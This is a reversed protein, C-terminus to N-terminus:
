DDFDGSDDLAPPVRCLPALGCSACARLTPAVAADGAAFEAAIKEIRRSWMAILASFNPMGEMSSPRGRAKFIGGRETEAVFCCESANVKGYAVAVLGAPRLLAYIPLQPNEPRDGRWDPAAMGTKYDILVRGGDALRDVRDIRVKFELGGHRATQEGQELYEVEFPERSLETELWKGLLKGLRPVERRRWRLGPDRRECQKAIARVVSENILAERRAPEISQLEARTRLVSWIQELARHLMEGRERANFGPVPRGLAETTLRTTAFGRFACLSQARLTAVGRTREPSAFVRDQEFLRAQEFKPAQAFKPAQEDILMELLPAHTRFAHWHPQTLPPAADPSAIDPSALATAPLLPSHTSVRGDGSDAYSFVSRAARFQWRRQLDEALQLQSEASASVVGYERQLRVPLLPVPDLPPPWREETCGAVWLGDYTLWPDMLQGSVWIAPIGTQAQFATDRAARQLIRGASAASRAGFVADATALAALLERFREASQFEASSWRHRESWPGSEFADVWVSVWRSLPHDGRVDELTRLFIRLRQLAAVPRAAAERLLNESLRLWENLDAESPGRSRLAIDLVAAASADASSGQLEPMRLLASFNEFSVSGTSASLTSMAARVPAYGSLPTGGAVAYPAGTERASLSFRQPALAADFADLVQGRRLTLDPICIWARFNPAARLNERAWEAIAALEAAPSPAHLRHPLAAAAVVAPPLSEVACTELWRRAVPRWIPSEIWLLSRSDVAAREIMRDSLLQDSAICNLERCREEFKRNWNLLALSEETAYEALASVPIGYEFMARRARRASRAAGAPELFQDGSDSELIVSRWLEREEIDSLARPLSPDSLQREGYRERLWGGFDRIRPTPWIQDGASVHMREVADFLAAALETNPALITHGAGAADFVSRGL